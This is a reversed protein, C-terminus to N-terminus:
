KENLRARLRVAHGRGDKIIVAIDTADVDPNWDLETKVDKEIDAVSRM